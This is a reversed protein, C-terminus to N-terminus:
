APIQDKRPSGGKAGNARSARQKSETRAAGGKKGLQSMWRRTGYVGEILSQLYFDVDLDPFFFAYGIGMMEYNRLQAATANELGELNEIPIALRLGNSLHIVLIRVDEAFEIKTAYPDPGHEEEYLRRAELAAEIEADTTLSVAQPSDM